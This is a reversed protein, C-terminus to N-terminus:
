PLLRNQQPLGAPLSGFYVKSSRQDTLTNDAIILETTDGQPSGSGGLLPVPLAFDPRILVENHRVTIRKMAVEPRSRYQIVISALPLTHVREPKAVHRMPLNIAFDQRCHNGEILLECSGGATRGQAWVGICARACNRIRNGRIIGSNRVSIGEGYFCNYITNEEVVADRVSLYMGHRAFTLSSLGLGIDHIVNQRITVGRLNPRIDPDRSGGKVSFDIGDDFTYAVRNKEILIQADEDMREYSMYASIGVGLVDTIDNGVLSVETSDQLMIGHVAHLAVPHFEHEGVQRPPLNLLEERGVRRVVCNEVRIRRCNVLSLGNGARSISFQCNRILVDNRRDLVLGEPFTRNEIIESWEAAVLSSALLAAAIGIALRFFLFFSSTYRFSTPKM